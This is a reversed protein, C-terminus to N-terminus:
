SAINISAYRTTITSIGTNRTVQPKIQYGKIASIPQTKSISKAIADVQALAEVPDALDVFGAGSDMLWKYRFEVSGGASAVTFNYSLKGDFPENGVYEFIGKIKDILKWRESTGCEILATDQTTGFVLDTFTNNVIAGNPAANNNIYACGNYKSDVVSPNDSALVRRDGQDLGATDWTGAQPDTGSPNYVKNVQFTDTTQNYVVAGGDYDTALTTNLTIGDGDILTTGVDTITVSDSDFAGAGGDADDIFPIPLVFYGAGSAIIINNLGVSNYSTNITYGSTTAKQNVYVTPGPTFNFQTFGGGNDTVSNITVASISADAVATFTGNSSSSIDFLDGHLAVTGIIVRADDTLAPEIRIFSEGTNLFGGGDTISVDSESIQTSINLMPKNTSSVGISQQSAMNRSFFAIFNDVYLTDTWDRFITDSIVSTMGSISGLDFNFFACHAPQFFHLFPDTGQLDFLQTGPTNAVVTFNILELSASQLEFLKVTGTYVYYLNQASTEIRLDYGNSVYSVGSIFPGQTSNIRIITNSTLTFVGLTALADLEAPDTIDYVNDPNSRVDEDGKQQLPTDVILKGSGGDLHVPSDNFTGGLKIPLYTNTVASFDSDSVAGGKSVKTWAM